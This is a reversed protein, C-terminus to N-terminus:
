EIVEDALALLKDPIDIGIAKATKLNIVLEIKTSQVVPLDAPKAGKIIRGAYVAVQRYADPVSPGYSILGGDEVYERVTYIAPIAYRTALAVIQARGKTAFLTDPAVMLGDIKNRAFTAFAAEIERSDRAYAIEMQINITSAAARVDKTFGEAITANPNVLAGLRVAVPLLEHLVGLRKATLETIFYNVGTANGAPRNLSAVLGFKVPDDSVMFVIPITSTADKAVRAANTNPSAVIVTVKQRVLDAALEPLRDYQGEAYRYEITMNQNEVYGDEALTRRFAAVPPHPSGAHLFGIVPTPPQEARVLSPWAAASGILTIFERRKFRDFQM